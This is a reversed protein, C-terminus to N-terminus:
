SHNYNQLTWSPLAFRLWPNQIYLWGNLVTAHFVVYTSAFILIYEPIMHLYQSRPYLTLSIRHSIIDYETFIPMHLPVDLNFMCHMSAIYLILVSFTDTKLASFREIPRDSINCIRSTILDFILITQRLELNHCVYSQKCCMRLGACASHRELSRLYCQVFYRNHVTAQKAGNGKFPWLEHLCTHGKM